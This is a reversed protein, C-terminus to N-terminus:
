QEKTLNLSNLQEAGSIGKNSLVNTDEFIESYIDKPKEYLPHKIDEDVQYKYSGQIIKRGIYLIDGICHNYVQSFMRYTMDNIEKITFGCKALVYTKQEEFSPTKGDKYKIKYYDEWLQQVDADVYIDKYDYINQYLIIKKIDDFEKHNIYGKITSDEGLLVLMPKDKNMLFSVNEEGLSYKMINAIYEGYEEKLSYLYYLYELYSMQIVRIDNIKNKDIQLISLSPEFMGWDKVKVPYIKLEYGCKLQYPCPEDNQFYLIKLNEIDVAM